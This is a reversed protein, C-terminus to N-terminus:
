KSLKIKKKFILISVLLIIVIISILYYFSFKKESVLENQETKDAEELKIIYEGDKSYLYEERAYRALYDEDKLKVIETNLDTEEDKLQYLKEQLLKQETEYKNKSIGYYIVSFSVYGFMIITIVFTALTRIKLKMKRKKKM